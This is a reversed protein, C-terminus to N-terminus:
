LKVGRRKIGKILDCRGVVGLKYCTDSAWTLRSHPCPMAFDSVQENASGFPLGAFAPLSNRIDSIHFTLKRM